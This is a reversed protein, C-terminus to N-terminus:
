KELIHLAVSIHVKHLPISRRINNIVAKASTMARDVTEPDQVLGSDGLSNRQSSAPRSIQAGGSMTWNTFEELSIKNDKNVDIDSFAKKVTAAAIRSIDSERLTTLTPNGRWQLKLVGVLYDTLEM